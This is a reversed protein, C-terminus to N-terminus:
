KEKLREWIKNKKFFEITFVLFVAFAFSYVGGMLTKKVTGRPMRKDPVVATDIVQVINRQAGLNLQTNLYNLNEVYANAIKASLEASVTRVYLKVLGNKEAAIRITEKLIGRASSGEKVEWLKKLGLQEIVRDAMNRSELMSTILDKIDLKPKILFGDEKIDYNADLPFFTASAEYTAPSRLSLIGAFLMGAIVIALVLRRRRYIIRIYDVLDVENYPEKMASYGKM